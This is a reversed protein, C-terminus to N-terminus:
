GLQGPKADVAEHHPRGSKRRRDHFGQGVGHGPGHLVGRQLRDGLLRVLGEREQRRVLGLRVGVAREAKVAFVLRRDLLALAMSSLVSAASCPRTVGSPTSNRAKPTSTPSTNPTMGPSPPVVAIASRMGSVKVSSGPWAISSIPPMMPATDAPPETDAIRM